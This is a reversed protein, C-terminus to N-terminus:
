KGKGIAAGILALLAVPLALGCGSGLAVALGILFWDLFDLEMVEETYDRITPQFPLVRLRFRPVARRTCGNSGGDSSGM